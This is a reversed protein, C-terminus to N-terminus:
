GPRDACVRKISPLLEDAIAQKAVFASAGAALAMRVVAADAEATLVVIKAAPIAASIQRCAELGSVTPMNLDLVIVDPQLRVAAELLACGDAVSGVVECDRALFRGIAKVM